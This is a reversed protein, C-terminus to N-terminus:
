EDFSVYHELVLDEILGIEDPRIRPEEWREGAFAKLAALDRWVSMVVYRDGNPDTPRGVELRLLGPQGRLAPIVDRRLFREMAEHGGPGARARALRIIVGSKESGGHFQRQAERNPFEAPAAPM